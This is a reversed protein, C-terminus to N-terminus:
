AAEGRALGNRRAGAMVGVWGLRFYLLMTREFGRQWYDLREERSLTRGQDLEVHCSHCAAAHFVDHAKLSMGKGYRASNAHAPECGHGSYGECVGHIQVQCEHVGHALDLLKRDRHNSEETRMRGSKPKRARISSSRPSISKKAKLPTKRQM